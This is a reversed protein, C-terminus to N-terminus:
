KFWAKLRDGLSSGTDSKVPASWDIAAIIKKFRELGTAPDAHPMFYHSTGAESDSLCFEIRNGLIAEVKLRRSAYSGDSRQMYISHTHVDSPTVLAGYSATSMFVCIESLTKDNLKEVDNGAVDRFRQALEVWTHVTM